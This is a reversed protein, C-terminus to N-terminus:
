VFAAFVHNGLLRGRSTLRVRDDPTREILEVQQLADLESGFVDWLDRRYRALFEARAVGEQTLRLGMIMHEAMAAHDDITEVEEAAASLPYPLPARQSEIRAIYDAPRLVTRYRTRAAYGHAGAGLGLYPLNRWYHLNHRCAYGPKCWNSIEYQIFGAAALRQAAWEYMDAALDSDPPAVVGQEIWRQMPTGDEVGLSYLSLHDPNMSLATNLSHQWTSMSQAPSGYILDLNINEFGARRALSVTRQVDAVDHRRAFLRLEGADASQMGLSLRNVGARRLERLYSEDVAGPNAELTIEPDPLLTLIQGARRIFACIAKAPVLSPTGGGFYITSVPDDPAHNGVLGLERELARMYRLILHNQGTYTNFACYTCRTHCFPIHVYLALTTHMTTM